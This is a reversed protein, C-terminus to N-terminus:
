DTLYTTEHLLATFYKLLNSILILRINILSIRGTKKKKPQKKYWSRQVQIFFISFSHYYRVFLIPWLFSQPFIGM